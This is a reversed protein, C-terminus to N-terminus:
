AVVTTGNRSLDRITIINEKRTIEVHMRSVADNFDFRGYHNERGLIVVEGDRLGKFGKMKAPDFKEQDVILCDVNANGTGLQNPHGIELIQGEPLHVQILGKEEYSISVEKGGKLNYNNAIEVVVASIDDPKSRVHTKDLSRNQAQKVLKKAVDGGTKAINQIEQFSLNDHVGDSALIIKDGEELVVQCIHPTPPTYNKDKSGLMQTIVNRIGWYIKEDQNLNRIDEQTEAMDLKQGISKREEQPLRVM